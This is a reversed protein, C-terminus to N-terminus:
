KPGGGFLRPAFPSAAGEAESSPEEGVVVRQSESLDGEVMETQVGDTLGIRLQVPRVFRGEEVWVQGRDHSVKGKAGLSAEVTTKQGAGQAPSPQAQLAIRQSQPQWRLAANPVLLTNKRRGVEFHLNATLYPLLKSSQNDTDVVVTYTVVNQTMTANLRVQNVKGKFVEDPYADVTFRVDQAGSIRGVDAENVSAWVQLRKLDKAILFLSPANLSAVVTQGVNVRRDVIVGNVPSRIVTYDLNQQAERKDAEAVARSKEALQKTARAQDIAAEAVSLNARAVQYAARAADYDAESISKSPHLQEARTWDRDAQHSKAKMQLVDAETRRLNAEEQAVQARAQEVMAAAKDLRARYVSDDIRALVTGEDVKSLFDIPKSSDEPNRGFEKIMGIVQAGVDVVEEPEITGTANVSAVLEGRTVPTTRLVPGSPRSAYWYWWLACVVVAAVAGWLAFRTWNFKRSQM